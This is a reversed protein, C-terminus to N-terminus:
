LLETYVRINEKVNYLRQMLLYAMIIKSEETPM